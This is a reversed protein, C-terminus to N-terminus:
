SSISLEGCFLGRILEFCNVSIVFEPVVTLLRATIGACFLRRMSHKKIVEQAYRLASKQEVNRLEQPGGSGSLQLQTKVVDIPNTLWTAVTAALFSSFSVSKWESEFHPRTVIKLREYLIWFVSIMPIEALLSTGYGVYLGRVGENALITKCIHWGTKQFNNSTQCRQCLVDMPTWLTFGATTACAGALGEVLISDKPLQKKFISSTREYTCFYLAQAPGYFCLQTTLGKYLVRPGSQHLLTKAVHCMSTRSAINAQQRCRITDLPYPIAVSILGSVGGSIATEGLTM